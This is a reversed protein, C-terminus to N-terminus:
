EEPSEDKGLWSSLFSKEPPKPVVSYGVSSKQMKDLLTAQQNHKDRLSESSKADISYRYDLGIDMIQKAIVEARPGCM